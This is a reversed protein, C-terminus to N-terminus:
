EAAVRYAEAVEAPIAKTSGRNLWKQLRDLYLYVV